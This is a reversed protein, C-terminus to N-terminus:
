FKISGKLVGSGDILVESATLMTARFDPTEVRYINDGTFVRSIKYFSLM